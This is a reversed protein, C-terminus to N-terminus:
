RISRTPGAGETAAFCNGHVLYSPRGDASTERTAQPMSLALEDLDAITAMRWKAVPEVTPAIQGPEFQLFLELLTM